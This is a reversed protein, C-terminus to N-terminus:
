RQRHVGRTVVIDISESGPDFLIQVEGCVLQRMVQAVKVELAVDREGYETGERLVFSEVVARLVDNTLEQHPVEVPPPREPREGVDSLRDVPLCNAVLPAERRRRRHTAPRVVASLRAPALRQRELAVAFELRTQALAQELTAARSREEDLVAERRALLGRTEALSKEASARHQQLEQNLTQLSKAEANQSSLARHATVGQCTREVTPSIKRRL